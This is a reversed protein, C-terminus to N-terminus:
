RGVSGSCSGKEEKKGFVEELVEDTLDGFLPGNNLQHFGLEGLRLNAEILIPEGDEGVAIDWSIMRFNAMKQQQESVLDRIKDFSPVVCESFSFGQPHKEYRIGRGSYAVNKLQGNEKIGCTIGGASANDVRSGNIGM